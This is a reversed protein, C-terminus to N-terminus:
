QKTEQTRNSTQLDERWIAPFALLDDRWNRQSVLFVWNGSDYVELQLIRYYLHLGLYAFTGIRGRQRLRTFFASTKRTRLLVM